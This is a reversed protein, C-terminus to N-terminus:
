SSKTNFTKQKSPSLSVKQLGRNKNDNKDIVAILKNHFEHYIENVDAFNIYNLSKLSDPDKFYTEGNFAKINRIRIKKNKQQDIFDVIFLFNPLHDTTKDILSDSSLSKEFINIFVNEVISPRQGAIM